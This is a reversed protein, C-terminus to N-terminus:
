CMLSALDHLPISSEGLSAVSKQWPTYRNRMTGHIRKVFDMVWTISCEFADNWLSYKPSQAKSQLSLKRQIKMTCHRGRQKRPCNEKTWILSSIEVTGFRVRASWAVTKFMWRWWDEKTAAVLSKWAHMCINKKNSKPREQQMQTSCPNINEDHVYGWKTGSVLANQM